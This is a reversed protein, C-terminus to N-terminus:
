RGFRGKIWKTADKAAATVVGGHDVGPYAKYSVKLHAKKYAGVLRDTFLKFVTTDAAGQEIRVPTGIRLSATENKALAALLPARDVGPRLLESPALGGFSGALKLRDYCESLTQPYLATAKDSLIAPVDLAPASEDLGRFIMAVLASLGGGPGTLSDLLSAQDVLHSVPAFAVTGRVKLDPTWKPALSAAFLAAHGGQSHGSIVVDRRLKRPALARAARVADLVGRAESTGSLFPHV